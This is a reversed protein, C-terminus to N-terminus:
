SSAASRGQDKIAPTALGLAFALVCGSALMRESGREEMLIRDAHIEEFTWTLNTM